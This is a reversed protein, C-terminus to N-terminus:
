QIKKMQNNKYVFVEDFQYSINAFGNQYMEYQRQIAHSPVNSRDVNNKIDNEVRQISLEVNSELIIAIKKIGSPLNDLFDKRNKSNVNLADLVAYKRNNLLELVREKAIQWVRANQTQDSVNGTLERRIGDPEVVNDMNFFKRIMTSKGSGSIGIPMYFAFEPGGSELSENVSESPLSIVDKGDFYGETAKIYIPNEFYVVSGINNKLETDSEHPKVGNATSLTIHPYEKKSKDTNILLVDIKTNTLRGIAKLEHKKGVDIGDLSKPKFEITLHHYFENPHVPVIMRKLADVDDVFIGTYIIM